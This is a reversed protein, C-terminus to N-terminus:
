SKDLVVVSNGKDDKLFYCDKEKVEAIAEKEEEFGVIPKSIHAKVEGGERRVDEGVERRINEKEVYQIQQLFTILFEACFKTDQTCIHHDRDTEEEAQAV